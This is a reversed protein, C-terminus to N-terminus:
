VAILAPKNGPEYKMGLCMTLPVVSHHYVHLASVQSYKKRLVFFVQPALSLSLSLYSSINRFFTYNM